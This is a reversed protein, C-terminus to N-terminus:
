KALSSIEKKKDEFCRKHKKGWQHRKRLNVKKGFRKLIGIMDFLLM